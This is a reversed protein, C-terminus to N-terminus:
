EVIRVTKIFVPEQPVNQHPSRTTTQVNEIKKVVDMGEIVKGFVAYGYGSPTKDRHDLFTNDKV